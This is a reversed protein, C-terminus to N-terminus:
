GLQQITVETSRSLSVCMHMCLQHVHACLHVCAHVAPKVKPGTKVRERCFLQVSWEARDSCLTLTSTRHVRKLNLQLVFTSM